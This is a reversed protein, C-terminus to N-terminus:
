ARTRCCSARWRLRGGRIHVARRAKGELQRYRQLRATLFSQRRCLVNRCVSNEELHIRIHWYAGAHLERDRYWRRNDTGVVINAQIAPAPYNALVVATFPVSNTDDDVLVVELAASAPEQLISVSMALGPRFSASSCAANGGCAPSSDPM